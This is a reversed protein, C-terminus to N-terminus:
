ATGSIPQLIGSLRIVVIVQRAHDLLAAFLKLLPCSQANPTIELWHRYCKAVAVTLGMGYLSQIM